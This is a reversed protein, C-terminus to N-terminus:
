VLGEAVDHAKMRGLAERAVKELHADFDKQAQEQSYAHNDHPLTWHETYVVSGITATVAVIVSHDERVIKDSVTSVTRDGIQINKSIPFAM